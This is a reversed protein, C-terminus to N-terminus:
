RIESLSVADTDDFAQNEGGMAWVFTYNSTGAASHVSWAPSIIAQQNKMIVSRTARPEGLLIFLLIIM